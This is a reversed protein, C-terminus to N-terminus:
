HMLNITGVETKDKGESTKHAVIVYSYIGDPLDKGTRQSTGDWTDKSDTSRFVLEGWRTYVELVHEDVGTVVYKFLDNVGDGNPTFASPIFVNYPEEVYVDKVVTDACGYENYVIQTFSYWGTDAARFSQATLGEVEQGNPLITNSFYSGAATDSLHFVPDYIDTKEPTIELNAVPVPLVEIWDTYTEELTDLCGDLTLMRHTVSYLGPETYIHVPSREHSTTGDGFDWFHNAKGYYVSSDNFYARVPPAAASSLAM